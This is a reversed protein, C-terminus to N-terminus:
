RCAFSEAADMSGPGGSCHGMGDIEQQSGQRARVLEYYAITCIRTM